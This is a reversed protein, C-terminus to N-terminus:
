EIQLVHYVVICRDHVLFLNVSTRPAESIDGSRKIVSKLSPNLLILSQEWQFM